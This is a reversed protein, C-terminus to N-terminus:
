KQSKNVSERRQKKAPPPGCDIKLDVTMPLEPIAMEPARYSVNPILINDDVCASLFHQNVVMFTPYPQTQYSCCGYLCQMVTVDNPQFSFFIYKVIKM